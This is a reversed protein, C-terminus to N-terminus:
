LGLAFLGIIIACFAISTLALVAKGVAKANGTESSIGALATLLLFAAILFEVLATVINM